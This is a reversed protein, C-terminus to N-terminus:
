KKPLSNLTIRFWSDVAVLTHLGFIHFLDAAKRSYDARRNWDEVDVQEFVPVPVAIGAMKHHMYDAVAVEFVPVPVPTHLLGVAQM